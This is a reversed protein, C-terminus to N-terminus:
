GYSKAAPNFTKCGMARFDTEDTTWVVRNTRRACAAILGDAFSPKATANFIAEGILRAAERFDDPWHPYRVLPAIEAELFKRVSERTQKHKPAYLGIEYEAMAADCTALDREGAIVGAFWRPDEQGLIWISTEILIPTPAEDPMM